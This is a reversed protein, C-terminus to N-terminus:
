VRERCSARGIQKEIQQIQRERQKENTIDIATGIVEITQANRRIPNLIALYTIGGFSGEYNVNEGNWAKEYFVEKQIAQDASLFESLTKGTVFGPSLGVKEILKGEIFTHIFKDDKKIFKFIFGSERPIFQEYDVKDRQNNM